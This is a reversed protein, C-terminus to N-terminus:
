LHQVSVEVQPMAPTTGSERSEPNRSFLRTLGRKLTSPTPLGASLREPTSPLSQTARDSHGIGTLKALFHGARAISRFGGQLQSYPSPAQSSPPSDPDNPLKFSAAKRGRILDRRSATKTRLLAAKSDGRRLVRAKADAREKKMQQVGRSDGALFLADEADQHANERAIDTATRGTSDKHDILDPSTNLLVGALVHCDHYSVCIHVRSHARAFRPSQSSRVSLM